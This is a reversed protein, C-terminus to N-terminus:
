DDSSQRAHPHKRSEDLGPGIPMHMWHTIGWGVEGNDWRRFEGDVFYAMYVGDWVNVLYHCEDNSEKPMRDEVSIWELNMM